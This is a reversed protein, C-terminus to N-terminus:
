MLTRTLIGLTVMLGLLWWTGSDHSCVLRSYSGKYLNWLWSWTFYHTQKVTSSTVEATQIASHHAPQSSPWWVLRRRRVCRWGNGWRACPKWHADVGGWTVIKVHTSLLPLKKTIATNILNPFKPPKMNEDWWYQGKIIEVKFKVICSTM